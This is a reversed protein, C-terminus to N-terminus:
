AIRETTDPDFLNVDAPDVRLRVASGVANPAMGVQRITFPQGDARATVLCEHGLWEVARVEAEFTGADDIELSEPRVGLVVPRNAELKTQLGAPLPLSAGALTIGSGNADVTANLCNMPPTGIFQAM